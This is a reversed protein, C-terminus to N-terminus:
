VARGLRTTVRFVPKLGDDVFTSPSTFTFKWHDNLTLLRAKRRRYIEEITAISGDALVLESDSSLCKGMSPRAAVIVMDGRQLGSTMYDLDRFGTAIGTILQERGAIEEIYELQKHAVESIPVFG